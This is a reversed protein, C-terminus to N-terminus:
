ASQLRLLSNWLRMGGACEGSGDFVPVHAPGGGCYNVHACDRCARARKREYVVRGLRNRSCVLDDMTTQHLDGLITGGLDSYLPNTTVTGDPNLTFFRDESLVNFQLNPAGAKQEFAGVTIGANRLRPYHLDKLQFLFNWVEMYPVTLPLAPTTAAHYVPTRLFRHFDVSIDFEWAKCRNSIMLDALAAPGKQVTESNLEVNVVCPIGADWFKNLGAFFRAQYADESGALNLKNGLAYTTEVLGNFEAGVMEVLWDPVSFCNTVMTQRADPLAQRLTDVLLQMSRSGILSPEGGEWIFTCERDSWFESNLFRQLVSTSLREKASRHEETLYCRKCDVNCQRTVNIFGVTESRM